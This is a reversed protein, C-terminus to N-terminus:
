PRFSAAEVQHCKAPDSQVVPTNFVQHYNNACDLYRSHHLYIVAMMDLYKLKLDQKLGV